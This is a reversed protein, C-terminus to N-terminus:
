GRLQISQYQVFLATAAYFVFRVPWERLHLEILTAIAFVILLIVLGVMSTKRIAFLFAGAIEASALVQIGIGHPGPNIATRVSAWVIFICFVIGYVTLARSPDLWRQKSASM